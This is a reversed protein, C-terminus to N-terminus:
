NPEPIEDWIWSIILLSTLGFFQIPLDLLFYINRGLEQGFPFIWNWGGRSDIFATCINIALPQTSVKSEKM